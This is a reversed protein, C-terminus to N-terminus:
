QCTNYGSELFWKVIDMHIRCGAPMMLGSVPTIVVVKSYGHTYPARCADVTWQCTNDCGSEMFWKVIDLYVYIRCGEPMMLGSVPTIV